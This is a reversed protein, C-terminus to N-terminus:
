RIDEKSVPSLVCIIRCYRYFSNLLVSILLADLLPQPVRCARPTSGVDGGVTDGYGPTQKSEAPM